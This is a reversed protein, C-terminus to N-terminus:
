GASGTAAEVVVTAVPCAAQDCAVLDRPLLLQTTGVRSASLTHGAVRVPGPPDVRLGSGDLPTGTSASQVDAQDGVKMHVVPRKPSPAGACSTIIVSERDAASLSVAGCNSVESGPRACAACLWIAILAAAYHRSRSRGMDPRFSRTRRPTDEHAVVETHPRRRSRAGTTICVDEVRCSRDSLPLLPHRLRIDRSM